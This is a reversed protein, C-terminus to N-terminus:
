GSRGEGTLYPDYAGLYIGDLGDNVADILVTAVAIDPVRRARALCEGGELGRRQELAVLADM